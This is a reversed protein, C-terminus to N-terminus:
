IFKGRKKRFQKWDEATPTSYYSKKTHDAISTLDGRRVKEIAELVVDTSEYFCKKYLDAIRMGDEIKIKRRAVVAGADIEKEMVHVSVGTYAEGNRYAQFVPWLGGYLPLLSSHRNLCCKTPLRLLEDQFYLANSSIIVDPQKSRIFDLYPTQNIDYEISMYDIKYFDFVSKVSYFNGGKEKKGVMDKATLVLQDFALRAIEPVTLVNMNKKLYLKLDCKAPVKTVLGAGVIEDNTREILRAVFNPHYFRTEDIVLFLKM